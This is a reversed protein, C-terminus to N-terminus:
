GTSPNPRVIASPPSCIRAASFFHYTDPDIGTTSNAPAKMIQGKKRSSRTLYQLTDPYRFIIRNSPASVSLSIQEPGDYLSQGTTLFAWGERVIGAQSSEDDPQGHSRLESTCYQEAAAHRFNM